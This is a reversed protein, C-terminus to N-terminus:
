TKIRFGKAQLKTKEADTLIEALRVKRPLPVSVVLTKQDGQLDHFPRHKEAEMYAQQVISLSGVDLGATDGGGVGGPIMLVAAEAPTPRHTEFVAPDSIQRFQIGRRSSSPEKSTAVYGINPTIELQLTQGNTLAAYRAMLAKILFVKTECICLYAYDGRPQISIYSDRYPSVSVKEIDTIAIRRNIRGKQWPDHINFLYKEGVVLARRLLKYNPKIKIVHDSYLISAVSDGKRHIAKALKSAAISPATTGPTLIGLWDNCNPPSWRLSLRRRIKGFFNLMGLAERMATAEPHKRVLFGRIAAQLKIAAKKMKLFRKRLLRGKVHAQQKLWAARIKKYDRKGKHARWLAALKSVVQLM